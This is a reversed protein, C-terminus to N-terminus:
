VIDIVHKGLYTIHLIYLIRGLNSRTCIRTGLPWKNVRRTWTSLRWPVLEWAGHYTYPLLWFTPVHGDRLMVGLFSPVGALITGPRYEFRRSGLTTIAEM